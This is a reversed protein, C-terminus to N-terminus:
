KLVVIKKTATFTNSKIQVFYMGNPLHSIETNKTQSRCVIQGSMNYIYVDFLAPTTGTFNIKLLDTAPNPYIIVPESSTNPNTNTTSCNGITYSYTVEANKHVGGSADAPLYARVYDVKVCSATVTVRIHGSGDQTVSTYADGNAILGLSYTSDSPMPVEQYIVGDMEEKAFLHDHGQFFISVNNDKFLQHIPKAWGPRKAPFTFNTGNQEYGGWEFLKANTIGGRGQGRVHHAFVFKYKSTSEELTKKLWDYQPKGLTWAWAGPKDSTDCQDRYMDLVVFLADGWTWAYYNEPNGIGYPENASNGSYFNNPYPNPYYYKRWQTSWVALNNPPNQNLYYDNEGEHNGLCVYFPVSHSINGLFSRYYKHLYDVQASTITSPYHDDGFIDGLSLMFDPKDAAQNNLCIQYLSKVGKIDYLHEDAEITFTFASDKSRQTHFSYEPTASFASAGVSKYRARYFYKKDPLLGTMDIEDPRGSVTNVTSTTNPYSGSQEGYEFYLQVSQDFLISATVANNTPRGLIINYNQAEAFHFQVLFTIVIIIKKM